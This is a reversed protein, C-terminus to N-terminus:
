LLPQHTFAKGFRPLGKARGRPHAVRRGEKQKRGEKGSGIEQSSKLGAAFIETAGLSCSRFLLFFTPNPLLSRWNERPAHSPLQLLSSSHIHGTPGRLNQGAKSGSCDCVGKGPWSKERQLNLPRLHQQGRHHVRVAAEQAQHQGRSLRSRGAHM